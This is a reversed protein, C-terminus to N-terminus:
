PRGRRPEARAEVAVPLSQVGILGLFTTPVRGRLGVVVGTEDIAYGSEVDLGADAVWRVAVSRAATIDVGPERGGGRYYDAIDIEAAAALASSDATNQLTRRYLWARTGDVALGAVAFCVLAIGIVFMTTQGAEPGAGRRGRIV